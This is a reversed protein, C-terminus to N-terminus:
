IFAPFISALTLALVEELDLTDAGSELLLSDRDDTGLLM